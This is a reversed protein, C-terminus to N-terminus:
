SPDAHEAQVAQLCHKTGPVGLAEDQPCRPHPANSPRTDNCPKTANSPQHTKHQPPPLLPPNTAVLLKASMGQRLSQTRSQEPGEGFAGTHVWQRVMTALRERM